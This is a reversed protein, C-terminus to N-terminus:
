WQCYMSMKTYKLWWMTVMGGTPQVLAAWLCPTQTSPLSSQEETLPIGGQPWATEQLPGSLLYNEANYAMTVITISLLFPVM